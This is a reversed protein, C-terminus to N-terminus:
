TSGGALDMLDPLRRLGDQGGGSDGDLVANRGSLPMQIVCRVGDPLFQLEASAGLEYPVSREILERGFGRREPAGSLLRGDRAM